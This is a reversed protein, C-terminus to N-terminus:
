EGSVHESTRLQAAREDNGIQVWAHAARENDGAREWAHAAREQVANVRDMNNAWSLADVAQEWSEAANREWGSRHEPLGTRDAVQEWAEAGRIYYEASQIWAARGRDDNGAETWLRAM